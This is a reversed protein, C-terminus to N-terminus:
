DHEYIKTLFNLEITIRWISILIMLVENMGMDLRLWPWGCSEDISFLFRALSYKKKYSLFTFIFM